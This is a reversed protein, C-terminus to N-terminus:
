GDEGWPGYFEELADRGAHITDNSLSGPVELADELPRLRLSGGGWSPSSPAPAAAADLFVGTLRAPSGRYAAELAAELSSVVAEDSTDTLYIRLRIGPGTLDQGVSIYTDVINPDAALVAIPVERKVDDTSVTCGALALPTLVLGAAAAAIRTLDTM